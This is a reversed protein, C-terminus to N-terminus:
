NGICSACAVLCPTALFKALNIQHGPPIRSRVFVVGSEEAERLIGTGLRSEGDNMM